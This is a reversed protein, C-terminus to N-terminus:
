LIMFVGSHPVRRDATSFPSGKKVLRHEAEQTLQCRPVARMQQQAGHQQPHPHFPPRAQQQRAMCCDISIAQRRDWAAFGGCAATASSLHFLCVSPCVGYRKISWAKCVIRAAGIIAVATLHLSEPSDSATDSDYDYCILANHPYKIMRSYLLLLWKVATQGPCGPYAPVLLFM